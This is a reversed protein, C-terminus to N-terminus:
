GPRRDVERGLGVRRRRPPPGFERTAAASCSWTTPWLWWRSCIIRSHHADDPEGAADTRALRGHGPDELFEAGLHDVGVLQRPLHHSWALRRQLVDHRGESGPHDLGVAGEVTGPQ